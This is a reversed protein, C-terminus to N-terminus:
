HDRTLIYAALSDLMQSKKEFTKISQRSKLLLKKAEVQAKHLGYLSVYTLKANDQDSGRKGLKTKDGILDLIDDTIQFLLGISHGYTDLARIQDPRAGALIAGSVLSASILAGTKRRHIFALLQKSSSFESGKLQKWRGKDAQIDAVQGGVMGPTGAANAIWRIAKLARDPYQTAIRANAMLEFAYTLLADGALIAIDEGFVIHNTPKGRRLTDDDMAPLDDHILSYAHICELACAFPMVDSAKMGCIEAGAIVLIPRLRKGGALMSYRMAKHIVKPSQSESPLVKRLHKEIAPLHKKFYAALAPPMM